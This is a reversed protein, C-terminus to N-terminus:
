ERKAKCSLRKDLMKFVVELYYFFNENYYGINWPASCIREQYCAIKKKDRVSLFAVNQM